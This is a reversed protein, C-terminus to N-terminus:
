GIDVGRRRLESLMRDVDQVGHVNIINTNGGGGSLDRLMRTPVVMGRTASFILEPGREGVVNWGPHMSGGSAHFGVGGGGSAGTDTGPMPTPVPKTTLAALEANLTQVQGLMNQIVQGAPSLATALRSALDGGTTAMRDAGTSMEDAASHFSEGALRRFEDLTVYVEGEESFARLLKDNMAAVTDDALNEGTLEAITPADRGWSDATIEGGMEVPIQIAQIQGSEILGTIEENTMSLIDEASVGVPVQIQYGEWEASDLGLAAPDLAQGVIPPEPYNAAGPQTGIVPLVVDELFTDFGIDRLAQETAAVSEEYLDPNGFVQGLLDVVQKGLGDVFERSNENFPYTLINYWLGAAAAGLGVVAIGSIASSLVGAIAPTLGAIAGGAAKGGMTLLGVGRSLVGGVVSAVVGAGASLAAGGVVAVGKIGLGIVSGVASTITGVLGVTLLSKVLMAVTITGFVGAIANALHDGANENSIGFDEIATDFGTQFAERLDPGASAAEEAAMGLSENESGSLLDNIATRVLAAITGVAYGLGESAAPLAEDTFWRGFNEGFRGLAERIEPFNGDLFTVINDFATRLADMISSFDIGEGDESPEFIDALRSIVDGGIRDFEPIFTENFWSIVNDKMGELAERMQPWAAEFARSLRGGLSNDRMEDGPLAEVLAADTSPVLQMETELTYTGAPVSMAGQLSDVGLAALVREISVNHGQAIESITKFNPDNAPLLEFEVTSQAVMEGVPVERDGTAAPAFLEDFFTQFAGRINDLPGLIETAVREITDRIGNFNTAVAVGLTGVTAVLLGLPSVLSSLIWLVPGTAALLGTFATALTLVEPSLESFWLTGQRVLDFVPVLAPGVVDGVRTFAAAIASATLEMQFALSKSQEEWADLTATDLGNNFDEVAQQLDEFNNAMRLAAELGTKSFMRNFDTEGSVDRLAKIAEGVSGFQEILETGTTVGLKQFAETMAETPKLLNSLMMAYATEAKRAGGGGQSLYAISAGMDELSVGLAASLPLIKQSNSLFEDLEGVGLQVMRTWVNGVRTADEQALGFASITATIANTTAQLDALGAEAVQTSVKWMELAKAQDTVGASFIEYLAQTAPVVGDRTTKAYDLVEARFAQFQNEAMGTISNINRMAADFEMSAKVASTGMALIPATVALTMNRGLRGLGGMMDSLVGTERRVEQMGRRFSTIDAGVVAELYAIRETM